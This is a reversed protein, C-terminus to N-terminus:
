LDWVGAAMRLAMREARTQTQKDRWWQSDRMANAAAAFNGFRIAGWMDKFRLTGSLGMQYIMSKIVDKRASNLDMYLPITEAQLAIQDVKEHLWKEAQAETITLVQLNTGYGITWVGLHDQYAKLRLGEDRKLTQIFKSM